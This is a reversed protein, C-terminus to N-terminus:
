KAINLDVPPKEGFLCSRTQNWIPDLILNPWFKLIISNIFLFHLLDTLCCLRPAQSILRFSPHLHWYTLQSTCAWASLSSSFSLKLCSSIHTLELSAHHHQGKHILLWLPICYSVWRTQRSKQSISCPLIESCDKFHTISPFKRKTM